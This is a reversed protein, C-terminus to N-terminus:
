LAATALACLSMEKKKLIVSFKEIFADLFSFLGRNFDVSKPFPVGGKGNFKSVYVETPYTNTGSNVNWSISLQRLPQCTL